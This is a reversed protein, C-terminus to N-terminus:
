AAEDGFANKFCKKVARRAFPIYSLSYWVSSCLQVVLLILLIVLKADRNFKIFCVVISVFLSSLYIMTVVKRMEDFMNKFLKKPGCVVLSSFLSIINGLAKNTVFYM